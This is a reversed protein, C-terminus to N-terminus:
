EYAKVTHPVALSETESSDVAYNHREISKHGEYIYDRTVAYLM